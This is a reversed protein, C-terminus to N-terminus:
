IVSQYMAMLRGGMAPLSYHEVAFARAREGLAGRMLSDGLLGNIGDALAAADGRVMLGADHRAMEHAVAVGPTAVCACGAALAEVLAIGFNESESPLVFV